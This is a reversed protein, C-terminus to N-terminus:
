NQRHQDPVIFNSITRHTLAITGRVPARGTDKGTRRCRVPFFHWRRQRRTRRLGHRVKEGPSFLLPDLQAPHRRAEGDVEERM